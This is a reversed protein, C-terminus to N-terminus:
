ADGGGLLEEYLAAIRGVVHPRDYHELARRRGAQGMARARDRDGLLSILAAALAAADGAPVVLGTEGDVVSEPLGGANSVVVPKAMAMAELVAVGLGESLSPMVFVDAAALAPRVDAAFGAFTVREGLGAAAAERQLSDKEEGEGYIVLRAEPAAKAVERMAKLLVRHGKTQALRGVIAITRPGDREETPAADPDFHRCDVFDPVVKLKTEPLGAELCRRRVAESICIVCDCLAYKARGLWGGRVPFETRRTVVVKPKGALRAALGAPGQSASDHIHVIDPNWDRLRRLLRRSDLLGAAGRLSMTEWSLYTGKLRSALESGSHAVFWTEEGRASLALALGLSQVQGGGWGRNGDIQVSSPM